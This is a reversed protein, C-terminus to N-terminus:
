TPLTASTAGSVALFSAATPWTRAQRAHQPASSGGVDASLTAEHSPIPIFWRWSSLTPWRQVCSPPPPAHVHYAVGGLRLLCSGSPHSLLHRSRRSLTIVCCTSWNLWPRAPCSLMALHVRVPPVYHALALPPPHTFSPWFSALGVTLPAQRDLRRRYGSPPPVCNPLPGCPSPERAPLKAWNGPAQCQLYLSPDLSAPIHPAGAAPNRGQGLCQHKPCARVHARIPSTVM